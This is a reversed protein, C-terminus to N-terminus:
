GSSSVEPAPVPHTRPAPKKLREEVQNEVTGYESSGRMQVSDQAISTGIVGSWGIAIGCCLLGVGSVGVLLAGARGTGLGTAAGIYDALYGAVALGALMGLQSLLSILSWIRGQFANRIRTRFLVELITNVLPLTAFLCFAGATVIAVTRGAGVVAFFLGMAAVSAPLARARNGSRGLSAILVSSILMETAAVSQVGGFLTTEAMSLVLPGFLAQFTGSFFTVATAIWLLSRVSKTRRLYHIGQRLNSGLSSRAPTGAGSRRAAITVTLAGLVFTTADVALVTRLSFRAM